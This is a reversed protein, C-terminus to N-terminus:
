IVLPELGHESLDMNVKFVDCISNNLAAAIRVDRESHYYLRAQGAADLSAQTQDFSMGSGICLAIIKDRGPKKRAGSFINYGYNANLGSARLVDAIRMDNKTVAENLIEHFQKRSDACYKKIYSEIEGSEKLRSMIKEYKNMEDTDM